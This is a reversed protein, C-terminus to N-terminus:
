LETLVDSFVPKPLSAGLSVELPALPLHFTVDPGRHPIAKSRMVLARIEAADCVEISCKIPLTSEFDSIADRVKTADGNLAVVFVLDHRKKTASRFERMVDRLAPKATTLNGPTCFSLPAVFM